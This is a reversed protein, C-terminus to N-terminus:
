RAKCMFHLLAFIDSAIRKSGLPEYYPSVAIIVKNAVSIHCMEQKIINWAVGSVEGIHVMFGKFFIIIRSIPM